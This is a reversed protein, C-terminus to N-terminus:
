KLIRKKVLITSIIGIVGILIYFNYGLIAPPATPTRKIEFYDSFDYVTSDLTNTIKIQYQDSNLLDSPITWNYIGDNLTSATIQIVFLDNNYLEILVNSIPGTSTWLILQSTDTEWSSSSDPTTITITFTFIEFYDSFDYVASDLTNIVKIQYLDSSTLGLPITWYFEGDNTTSPAIEMVFVDDEFLEIKVNSITGTSSWNIYHSTDTEWVSGTDPSIVTITPNYIEFNDSYSYTSTYSADKIKIQYLDSDYLGYPITWYYEGNNTTSPTIEMIFVDAEFLEITVDSISGTSNWYIFHSTGTQWTSGSDPTTVELEDYYYFAIDDVRFYGNGGGSFASCWQIWELGGSGGHEFPYTYGDGFRVGDIEFMWGLSINFYVVVDYWQSYNYYTYTTMPSWRGIIGDYWDLRFLVGLDDHFLIGFLSDDHHIKCHFVGADFSVGYYSINDRLAVRETGGSKYVAVHNLQIDGLNDVNSTGSGVPEIVSLTLGTPDQGVTDEEFDYYHLLNLNPASITPKYFYFDVDDVRFYGNGGGSFASCWQIWELGGSGGHEFPYTYGDGFRVGDIEFMWGLSINFYVVVDYWQSYNYYTYTTMPSWRGIIGDYWDLRFLVGLDDHFLIGFLSDDHHIKCHF